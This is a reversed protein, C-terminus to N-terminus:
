VCVGGVSVLAPAGECVAPLLVPVMGFCGLEPCCVFVEEFLLKSVVPFRSSRKFRLSSRVYSHIISSISRLNSPSMDCMSLSSVGAGM